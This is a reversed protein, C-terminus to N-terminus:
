FKIQSYIYIYEPNINKTQEDIQQLEENLQEYEQKIELAINRKDEKKTKIEGIQNQLQNIKETQKNLQIKYTRIAFQQQGGETLLSEELRAKEKLFLVFHNKNNQLQNYKKKLIKSLKM